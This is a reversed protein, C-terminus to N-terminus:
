GHPVATAAIVERILRLDGDLGFGPQQSIGLRVIVLQQSPMVYVRQGLRGSAYFSDAPMGAAIRGQAGESTGDNTWLGAGYSTGLTSRRSYAVWGAPLLRQGGVVGDNLYLLGLKAWDRASALMNTSGVPTGTADTEFVASQMGLPGFLDRRAFNLVDAESGGVADKVIRSLILTNPSEYEWVTGPPRKLAAQEAFGAMDPEIFLMRSTPDFGDDTEEAALGSTMRLLNDITIAHRADTPEAWAAVPAPAEVQLKGQNVLIGVLANIATKSASYGLLPTDAGIGPAYREAIVRGDKVVVVAKVWLPPGADPEAFVHDLAAALAPDAPVVLGPGALDPLLAAAAIPALAPPPPVPADAPLLRCGATGRDVSRSAFFGAWDTRVEKQARDVTYHMRRALLQLGPTPLLAQAYVQDPDQSSVFVESCLTSAVVGTAVKLARDPRFWFAAALMGALIGLGIIRRAIRNQRGTM